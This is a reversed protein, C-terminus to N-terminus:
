FFLWWWVFVLAVARHTGWPVLQLSRNRRRGKSDFCICCCSNSPSDVYVRWPYCWRICWRKPQGGFYISRATERCEVYGPGHSECQLYSNLGEWKELAFVVSWINCWNCKTTSSFWWSLYIIILFFFGFRCHIIITITFRKWLLGLTRWVLVCLTLFMVRIGHYVSRVEDKSRQTNYFPFHSRAFESLDPLLPISLLRQSHSKGKTRGRTLLFARSSTAYILFIWLNLVYRELSSVAM